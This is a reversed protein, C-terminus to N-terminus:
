SRLKRGGAVRWLPSDRDVRGGGGEAMPSYEENFALFIIKPPINQRNQRKWM